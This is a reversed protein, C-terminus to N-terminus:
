NPLRAAAKDWIVDTTEAEDAAGAIAQRVVHEAAKVAPAPDADAWKFEISVPLEREGAVMQVPRGFGRDLLAIAAPVKTRPDRLAEVLAHVAAPAHQRALTQIDAVVRPRGGPNPSASGKVWNPNGPRRQTM